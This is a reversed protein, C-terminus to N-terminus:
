RGEMRQLEAMVEIMAREWSLAAQIVAPAGAAHLRQSIASPSVGLRAAMARGNFGAMSLDVVQRQKATWGQRLQSYLLSYIELAPQDLPVEVELATRREEARQVAARARHFCPGDMGLARPRLPTDLPGIGLGFRVEVPHLAASVQALLRSLGSADRLLGQFEDGVTLVFTSALQGTFAANVQELGAQLRAQLRARDSAARSAVVDGIIALYVTEM